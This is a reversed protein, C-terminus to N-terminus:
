VSNLLKNIFRSFGSVKNLNKTDNELNYAIMDVGKSALSNPNELIFPRQNRVAKKVSLDEYIFGLSEVEFNLFKKTASNIKHYVEFGEKNSDVRNIVVKVSRDDRHINKVVAYADTISTPDPTIVMVLENSAEIFSMVSNSLGAGTDILIYDSDSAISDLNSVLNELQYKELDVLNMIGSGGSVIRIGGPADVVIEEINKEGSLVNNLSFKPILGLVVDVNSLGLDADIVVVKKGMKSLSIGLNVTFNTKGVGGKGSSITIIRAGNASSKEGSNNNSKKYNKNVLERLRTAQDKM